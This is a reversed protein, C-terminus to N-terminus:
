SESKEPKKKEMFFAGKEWEEEDWVKKVIGVQQGFLSLVENVKDLRVTPKGQELERVFRLGVGAKSALEAQTINLQKRKQKIFLSIQKM